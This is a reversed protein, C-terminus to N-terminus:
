YYYKFYALLSQYNRSNYIRMCRATSCCSALLSQYNRSNYILLLFFIFILSPQYARIIEVITSESRYKPLCKLALLSQYNRSNYITLQELKESIHSTLELLKQQQLYTRHPQPLTCPQYARIIEVITSLLHRAQRQALPQYARIIEVITSVFSLESYTM